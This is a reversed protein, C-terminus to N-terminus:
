HFILGLQYFWGAGRPLPLAMLRDFVAVLLATFAFPFVIKAWTNGYDTVQVALALFVVTSLVFGVYQLGMFYLVVLAATAILRAWNPGAEAEEMEGPAPRGEGGRKLLRMGSQVTLLLAFFATVMLIIKPWFDSDVNKYREFPPFTDAVFWLYISGLLLVLSFGLDLAHRTM